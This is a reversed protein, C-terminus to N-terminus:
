IEETYIILQPTTYVTNKNVTITNTVEIHKIKLKLDKIQYWEIRTDGKYVVCQTINCHSLLQGLRM